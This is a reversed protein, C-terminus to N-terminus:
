RRRGRELVERARERYPDPTSGDETLEGTEWDVLLGSEEFFFRWGRGRRRGSRTHVDYAVDDVDRPPAHEGLAVLASDAIRSKKARALVITAHALFLRGQAKKDRQREDKWAAYLSHVTLM